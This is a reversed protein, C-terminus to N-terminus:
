AQQESLWSRVHATTHVGQWYAAPMLMLQREGSGAGLRLVPTGLRPVAVQRPLLLLLWRAADTEPPPAVLAEAM